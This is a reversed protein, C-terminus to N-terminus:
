RRANLWGRVDDCLTVDDIAKSLLASALEAQAIKEDRAIEALVARQLDALSLMVVYEPVYVHMQLIASISSKAVGFRRALEKV